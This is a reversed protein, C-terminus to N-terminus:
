LLIFLIKFSFVVVLWLLILLTHWECHRYGPGPHSPPSTLNLSQSLLNPPAGLPPTHGTFAWVQLLAQGPGSHGRTAGELVCPQNCFLANATFGREEGRTSPYPVM